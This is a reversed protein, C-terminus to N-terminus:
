IIQYLTQTNFINEDCWEVHIGHRFLSIQEVDDLRNYGWLLSGEKYSRVIPTSRDYEKLLNQNHYDILKQKETSVLAISEAEANAMVPNMVLKYIKIQNVTREESM